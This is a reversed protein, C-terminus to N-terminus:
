AQRNDGLALLLLIALPPTGVLGILVWLIASRGRRTAMQAPLVFTFWIAFLLSAIFILVLGVEVQV